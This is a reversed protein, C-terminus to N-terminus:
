SKLLKLTEQMKDLDQSILKFTKAEAYEIADYVKHINKDKEMTRIGERDLMNSSSYKEIKKIELETM